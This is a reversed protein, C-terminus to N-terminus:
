KKKLEAEIGRENATTIFEQLLQNIDHDIFHVKSIDIYVDSGKPIKRLAEKIAM